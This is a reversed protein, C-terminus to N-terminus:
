TWVNERKRKEFEISNVKLIGLFKNKYDRPVKSCLKVNQHTCPSHHKFQLIYGFYVNGYNRCEVNKAHKDIKKDQEWGHDIRYYNIM